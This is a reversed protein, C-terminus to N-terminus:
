GEKQPNIKKPQDALVSLRTLRQTFAVADEPGVLRAQRTEQGQSNFFLVAPPGILGHSKLFAQEGEDIEDLNLRLAVLSQAASAVRKDAFTTKEM